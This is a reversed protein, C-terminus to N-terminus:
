INFSLRLIQNSHLEFAKNTWILQYDIGLPPADLLWHSAFCECTAVQHITFIYHILGFNQQLYM